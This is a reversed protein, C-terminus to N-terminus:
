ACRFLSMRCLIQMLTAYLMGAMVFQQFCQTALAKLAMPEHVQQILQFMAMGLMEMTDWIQSIGMWEWKQIPKLQFMDKKYLSLSLQRKFLSLPMKVIQFITSRSLHKLILLM